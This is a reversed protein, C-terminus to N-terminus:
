SPAEVKYGVGFVTRIYRPEKPDDGIKKRINKVHADITREYGEFADGSVAELLQLRSYVRGPHAAMTALIEFETRTLDVKTGAVTVERRDTDITLDGVVLMGGAASESARDVRRLVAKVRAVVERPSFPKSVYDDAGVELGILRDIEETKATVLIVPLDYDRQFRRTLEIGDIGPLMIDLLAIDPRRARVAEIAAEGDHATVVEYGSAELYAALVEVIKENDDVVLVTRRM